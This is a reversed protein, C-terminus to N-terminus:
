ELSLNVTRSPARDQTLDPIWNPVNIKESKGHDVPCKALGFPRLTTAPTTVLFFWFWLKPRPRQATTSPTNPELPKPRLHFFADSSADPM